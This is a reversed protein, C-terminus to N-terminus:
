EVRDAANEASHQRAPADATSDGRAPDAPDDFVSPAPRSEAAERKAKRQAAAEYSFFRTLTLLLLLLLPVANWMMGNRWVTAANRGFSQETQGTWGNEEAISIARLLIGLMPVYSVIGLLAAILDRRFAYLVAAATMGGALVYYWKAFAAFTSGYHDAHQLWGYAVAGGMIWVFGILSLWLLVTGSIRLARNQRRPSHESKMAPVACRKLLTM